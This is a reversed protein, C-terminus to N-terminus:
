QFIFFNIRNVLPGVLSKSYIQNNTDVIRSLGFDSIKIIFESNLLCNRAALDRHIIKSEILHSM